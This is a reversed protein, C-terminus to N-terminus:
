HSALWELHTLLLLMFGNFLLGAMSILPIKRRLVGYVVGITAIIIAVIVIAVITNLHQMLNLKFQRSGLILGWSAFGLPDWSMKWSRSDKNM